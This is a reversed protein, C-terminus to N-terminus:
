DSGPYRDKILGLPFTRSLTSRIWEAAAGPSMGWDTPCPSLIEVMSFGKGELQYLFSKMIAKKATVLNKYSDVAVRQIYSVGDITSLLESVKLPYGERNIDRGKPTTTTKQGSVTTPAM